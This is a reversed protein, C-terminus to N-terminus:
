AILKDPESSAAICYVRVKARGLMAIMIGAYVISFLVGIAASAMGVVKAVNRSTEDPLMKTMEPLMIPFLYYYNAYAGAIAAFISYIGFGVTMKRAWERSKLLGLGSVLQVLLGMLSPITLLWMFRVYTSNEMLTKMMPNSSAASPFILYLLSSLMSAIGLGALLINAIAFIM